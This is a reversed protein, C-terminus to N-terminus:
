IGPVEITEPTAWGNVPHYRSLTPEYEYSRPGPITIEGTMVETVTEDGFFGGAASPEIETIRQVNCGVKRDLTIRMAAEVAESISNYRGERTEQRMAAGSGVHTLVTYYEGTVKAQKQTM